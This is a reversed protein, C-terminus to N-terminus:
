KSLAVIERLFIEKSQGGEIGSTVLFDSEYAAYRDEKPQELEPLISEDNLSANFSPVQLYATLAWVHHMYTQLYLAEMEDTYITWVPKRHLVAYSVSTSAHSLVFEADRVLVATKEAIIQRGRYEDNLYRAKPHAAIVVELGYKREVAAFFRNLEAYYTEPNLPRMGVLALDSHFPLYIDLFVAYKGAVLRDAQKSVAYQEFDCLGIPVIRRAAEPRSLMVQGAAFVLEYPRVYWPQGLIFAHARNRMKSLLVGPSMLWHLMSARSISGWAPMAGWKVIATKCHYRSLLRFVKRFKWNKPLLLVYVADRQKAIARELEPFSGIERVYVAAQQHHETVQGRLLRTADWFEVHVAPSEWLYDVYWDRAVKATLPIYSLYIVRTM